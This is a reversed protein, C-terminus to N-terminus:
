GLFWGTISFRPWESFPTVYSVGHHQPVSFITLANFMPLLGESTNGAEDYFELLGGWSPNWNKTLSLVYAARRDQTAVVDSHRTLYHGKAYCTAQANAERIAGIGTVQRAVELFPASNLFSVADQLLQPPAKRSVFDGDMKFGYYLYQFGFAAERLVDRELQARTGPALAMFAERTIVQDVGNHRYLLRWPVERLLCEQLREASDATLVNEVRVRSNRAYAARLKAVDLSPNLALTGANV